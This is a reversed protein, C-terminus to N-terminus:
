CEIKNGKADYLSLVLDTDTPLETNYAGDSRMFNALTLKGGSEEYRVKFLLSAHGVQQLIRLSTEAFTHALFQSKALTAHHALQREERLQHWVAMWLGGLLIIAFAPLLFFPDFKIFKRIRM